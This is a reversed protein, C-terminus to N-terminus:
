AVNAHSLKDCIMAASLLAHYQPAQQSRTDIGTSTFGAVRRLAYFLLAIYYERVDETDTLAYALQRLQQIAAVARVQEPSPNAQLAITENLRSPALLTKELDYRIRLSETGVLDYRINSELEAFDRLAPGWGTKYFDILWTRGL